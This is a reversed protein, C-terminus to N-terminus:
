ASVAAAYRGEGASAITEKRAALSCTASVTGHKIGLLHAIENVHFARGKNAALFLHVRDAVTTVGAFAPMVVDELPQAPKPLAANRTVEHAKKEAALAKEATERATKETELSKRLAETESKYYNDHGAPCTFKKGDEQRKKQFHSPVGFTMSCAACQVVVM